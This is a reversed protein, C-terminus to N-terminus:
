YNLRQEDLYDNIDKKDEDSLKDFEETETLSGWKAKEADLGPALEDLISELLDLYDRAFIEHQADNMNNIDGQLFGMLGPVVLDITHINQGNLLAYIYAHLLEHAVILTQADSNLMMFDAGFNITYDNGNFANNLSFESWALGAINVTTFIISIGTSNITSVIQKMKANNSNLVKSVVTSLTPNNSQM